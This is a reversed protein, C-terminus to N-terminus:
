ACVELPEDTEIEEPDEDGRLPMLWTEPTCVSGFDSSSLVQGTLRFTVAMPGSTPRVEWIVSHQGLPDRVRGILEVVKGVNEQNLARIVLALDGAKFRSM